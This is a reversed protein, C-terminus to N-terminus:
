GAVTAAAGPCAATGAAQNVAGAVGAGIQAVSAGSGSLSSSGSGTSGFVGTTSILPSRTM